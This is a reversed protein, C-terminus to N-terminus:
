GTSSGLIEGTAMSVGTVHGSHGTLGTVASGLRPDVGREAHLDAIMGAVFPGFQSGL